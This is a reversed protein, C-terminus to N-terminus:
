SRTKQFESPNKTSRQVTEKRFSPLSVPLQYKFIDAYSSPRPFCQMKIERPNPSSMISIKSIKNKFLVTAKVLLNLMHAQTFGGPPLPAALRWAGQFNTFNLGDKGWVTVERVDILQPEKL